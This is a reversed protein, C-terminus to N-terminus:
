KKKIGKLVRHAGCACRRRRLKIKLHEFRLGEQHADLLLGKDFNAIIVHKHFVFILLGFDQVAHCNVFQRSCRGKACKQRGHFPM